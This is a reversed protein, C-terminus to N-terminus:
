KALRFFIELDQSLNATALITSTFSFFLTYSVPSNKQKLAVMYLQRAIKLVAGFKCSKKIPRGLVLNSFNGFKKVSTGGGGKVM